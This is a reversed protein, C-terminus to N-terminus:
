ENPTLDKYENEYLATLERFTLPPLGARQRERRKLSKLATWASVRSTKKPLTRGENHWTIIIRFLTERDANCLIEYDRPDMPTDVEEHDPLRPDM